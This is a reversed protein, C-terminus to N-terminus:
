PTDEWVRNCAPDFCPLPRYHELMGDHEMMEKNHLWSGPCLDQNHHGVIPIYDHCPGPIDVEVLEILEGCINCRGNGKDYAIFGHKLGSQLLARVENGKEYKM